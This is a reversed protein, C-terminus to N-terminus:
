GRWGPACGNQMQQLRHPACRPGHRCGGRRERPGKWQDAVWFGISLLAGIGQRISLKLRKQHLDVDIIGVVLGSRFITKSVVTVSSLLRLGVTVLLLRIAGCRRTRAQGAPSDTTLRDELQHAPGDRDRCPSIPLSIEQPGLGRALRRQAPARARERISPRSEGDISTDELHGLRDEAGCANVKAAGGIPFLTSTTEALELRADSLRIASRVRLDSLCSTLRRLVRAALRAARQFWAPAEDEQRASMARVSEM